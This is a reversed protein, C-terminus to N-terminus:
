NNAGVLSMMNEAQMLLILASFATEDLDGRLGAISCHLLKKQAALRTFFQACWENSRVTDSALSPSAWLQQSERLVKPLLRTSVVIRCNDDGYKPHLGGEQQEEDEVLRDDEGNAAADVVQQTDLVQEEDEDEGEDASASSELRQWM